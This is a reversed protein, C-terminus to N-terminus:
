AFACLVCLFAFDKIKLFVFFDKIQAKAGQAFRAHSAKLIIVSM